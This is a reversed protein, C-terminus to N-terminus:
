ETVTCPKWERRDTSHMYDRLDSWDARGGTDTVIGTSLITSILRQVNSAGQLWCVPGPVDEPKSWPRGAPEHKPRFTGTWKPEHDCMWNHWGSSPLLIEIPKEDAYALMAAANQRLRNQEDTTM